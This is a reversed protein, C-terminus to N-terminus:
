VALVDIATFLFYAVSIAANLNMFAIGAKSLDDPKVLRHEYIMLLGIAAVGVYYVTGLVFVQGVHLMAGFAALHLFRALWLATAVGFRSPISYAGFQRDFEADHTAYIIDFGAVWLLVAGGLALIELDLTGTVAIWAGIPAVALALGLFLQTAWTFRKTLSYFFVIALAVPSLAFCLPNLQFAALVLVMSSLVIFVIVSISSIQGTPLERNATRPNEADMKRDAWRNFGMAASRAGVMAVVIWGVTSVEIDSRMSALVVGSLAFPLAFISHSFRIMRGYTLIRDFV